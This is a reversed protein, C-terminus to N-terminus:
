SNIIAQDKILHEMTMPAVLLLALELCIMQVVAVVFIVLCIMRVVAKVFIVLYIMRVVAKVIHALLANQWMLPTIVVGQVRLLRERM